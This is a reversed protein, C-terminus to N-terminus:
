RGCIEIHGDPKILDLQIQVDAHARTLTGAM